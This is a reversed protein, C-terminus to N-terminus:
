AQISVWEDPLAEIRKVFNKQEKRPDYGCHQYFAHAQVRVSSSVLRVGICHCEQAWAEVARLLQKGLGQGQLSPDVALAVINKQSGSYIVEYDAAHLFGGIRGTGNEMVVVVRNGPKHCLYVLRDRVTELRCEYGLSDQIINWIWVADAPEMDRVIWSM